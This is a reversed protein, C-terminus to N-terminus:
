STALFRRLHKLAAKELRSVQAQSIGIEEAVEMQTRGDFFRMTLILKERESLREMGEKISVGEIWNGDTNKEDRIQDM